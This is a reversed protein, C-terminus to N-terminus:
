RVDEGPEPNPPAQPSQARLFGSFALVLLFVSVHLKM